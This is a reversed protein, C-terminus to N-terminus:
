LSNKLKILDNYSLYRERNSLRITKNRGLDNIDRDDKFKVIKVKKFPQLKLAIKIADDLGDNDFGIIVRKVPSKLILNVQYNSFKKGGTSLANEGITEANMLGEVVWVRDYLYLSDVNYMLMSKGIGFDEVEPNNFKPGDFLYKRANFYVLKGGQYFPMILYGMYKGKTCYGWGSKSVKDIDFGRKKVYARAAKGMISKGRKINHYSDPLSVNEKLEYPKLEEEYYELGEFTGLLSYVENRTVLNEVDAIVDIPSKKYGCSFCNTRNLAINVGYKKDKGCEPCDGKLWGRRYVFMGLRQTFYQHLKIKIKSTM